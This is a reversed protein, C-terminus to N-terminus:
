EQPLDRIALIDSVVRGGSSPITRRGEKAVMASSQSGDLNYACTFGLEECIGLESMTM